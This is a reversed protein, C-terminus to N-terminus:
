FNPPCWGKQIQVRCSASNNSIALCPLTQQNRAAPTLKTRDTSPRKPTPPARRVTPGPLPSTRDQSIFFVLRLSLSGAVAVIAIPCRFLPAVSGSTKMKALDLWYFAGVHGQYSSYQPALNSTSTQFAHTDRIISLHLTGPVQVFAAERLKPRTMDDVPSIAPRGRAQM